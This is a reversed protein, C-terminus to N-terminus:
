QAHVEPRRRLALVEGSAFRLQLAAGSPALTGSIGSAALTLPQGGDPARGGDTVRLGAYTEEGDIVLVHTGSVFALLSAGAASSDSSDLEWVEGAQRPVSTAVEPAARRKCGHLALLVLLAFAIAPRSRAVRHGSRPQEPAM